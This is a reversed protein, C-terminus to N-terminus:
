NLIASITFFLITSILIAIGGLTPTHNKAKHSRLGLEREIQGISNVKQYNILFLIISISLLFVDIMLIVTEM